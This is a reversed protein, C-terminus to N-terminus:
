DNHAVVNEAITRGTDDHGIDFTVKQGDRVAKYGDTQIATYHVFVDEGSETILFGYGKRPDFWKVTGNVQKQTSM